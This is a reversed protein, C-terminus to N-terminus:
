DGSLWKRRRWPDVIEMGATSELQRLFPLAM